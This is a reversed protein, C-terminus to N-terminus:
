IRSHFVHIEKLYRSQCSNRGTNNLLHESVALDCSQDVGSNVHVESAEEEEESEKQSERQYSATSFVASPWQFMFGSEHQIIQLYVDM